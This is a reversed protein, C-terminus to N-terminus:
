RLRVRDKLHAICLLASFVALPFVHYTHRWPEVLGRDYLFAVHALLSLATLPLWWWKRALALLLGILVLGQFLIDVPALNVGTLRQVGRHFGVLELRRFLKWLGRANGEIIQWPTHLKFYYVFPDMKDKEGVGGPHAWAEQKSPYGPQGAFELNAWHRGNKDWNWDGTLRYGNLRHPFLIAAMLGFALAAAAWGRPKRSAFALLMPLSLGVLYTARMHTLAGGLVGALVARVWISRFKALFAIEIFALLLVLEVELRMGRVSERALPLSVAVMLAALLGLTLGFLRRGVRESMLIVGLSAFFSVLRVHTESDGLLGLAGKVVLLFLPEREGFQASFFGTESFLKMKHALQHYGLTDFDLHLYLVQTLFHYRVLFGLTVIAWLPLLRRGGVLPLACLGLAFVALGMLAKSPPAPPPQAFLRLEFYQVVADPQPGPNEGEFSLVVDGGPQDLVSSLDLRTDAFYVDRFVFPEGGGERWIRLTAHAGPQKKYFNMRALMGKAGPPTPVTYRLTGQTGPPLCWGADTFAGSACHVFGESEFRGFEPPWAALDPYGRIDDRVDLLIQPDPARFFRYAPQFVGWVALALLASLGARQVKSM